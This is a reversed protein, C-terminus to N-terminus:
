TDEKLYVNDIKARIDNYYNTFFHHNLDPNFYHKRKIWIFGDSKSIVAVDIPGGVTESSTSMRRKLSTLNILSEAIAALEDKPLVNIISMVPEIFRREKYLAINNFYDGLIKKCLPYLNNAINEKNESTLPIISELYNNINQLLINFEKILSDHIYKNLNKDIGEMFNYVMEDQAFPIIRAPNELSIDTSKEDNKICKIKNLLIGGMKFSILSPFFEKEGFGAVVVGSYCGEVFKDKCFLYACLKDFQEYLYDDIQYDKFLEKKIQEIDSKYKIIVKDVYEPSFYPLLEASEWEKLKQNIIANIIQNKIVNVNQSSSLKVFRLIEINFFSIITDRFHLRQHVESFLYKDHELFRILDDAYERVKGYSRNGLERRYTKIITEWPVGMLEANGYVMIGVPHYKSLAFLKNASNYIKNGDNTQITVASDAALAVATRNLVGIEATM